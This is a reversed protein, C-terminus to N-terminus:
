MTGPAPFIKEQNEHWAHTTNCSSGLSLHHPRVGIKEALRQIIDACGGRNIHAAHDDISEFKRGVIDSCALEYDTVKLFADLIERARDNVVTYHEGAEARHLENIWIAAGLAGCGGGSLGIGAALGAAMVQHQGSLGVQKALKAACGVSCRSCSASPVPDSSLAADIERVAVKSFSGTKHMCVIPGAKLFAKVTAYKENWDTGSVDLCDISKNKARFAEVLRQAATVAATEARPGAGYRRHAAAGAALTAGWLMGCQYGQQVIGGALPMVAHEEREMPHSFARDVVNMLAESCTGVKMFTRITGWSTANRKTTEATERTKM